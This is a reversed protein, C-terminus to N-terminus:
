FVVLPTNTITLPLRTHHQTMKNKQCKECKQIDEEVDKKMGKWDTFRKLRKYTRTMGRHGGVPSENMEKLIEM